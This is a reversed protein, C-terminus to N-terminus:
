LADILTTGTAPDDYVAVVDRFKDFLQELQDVGMKKYDLPRKYRQKYIAEFYGMQVRCGYSVMIEQLELKFEELSRESRVSGSGSGSGTDSLEDSSVRGGGNTVAKGKDERRLLVVPPPPSPSALNPKSSRLYVFRKNGKGVVEIVDSMKKFLDVLKCSGYDTVFLPKSFNRQYESTVRTLPMCGGSLELLKVLQGKLGNFDGPAVWMTSELHGPPPYASSEGANSPWCSMVGGSYENQFQSSVMLSSSERTNGYCSQSQQSVGRYLITEDENMADLNSSSNFGCNMLYPRPPPLPPRPLPVFGEGHVISHWDWVFKGANILAPNVYVGSPIILVVNYGRQGLVHLAPAFDVDGTILVITSPPPHDLAFLFMDLLIAKDAADKRGNPVDVLKVGTRQLGERVRRPFANFDGFASFNVVSAGTVVPHLQIAMRINGAVDEPRVDSPVPTNEIDWLIAMPNYPSSSSRRQTTTTAATATMNYDTGISDISVIARESMASERSLSPDAEMESEYVCRSLSLEVFKLSLVLCQPVTSFTLITERDWMLFDLILSELKPCSELFTSLTQLNSWYFKASLRTLYPFQILPESKSYQFVTTWIDTRIVLDEVRSIDTLIDRILGRVSLDFVVHLDVKGSFDQNIIKFNKTKNVKTRLCQLLPADIVAQICHDIHLRKLMQSRVNLVMESDHRDRIIKLDELLPSGSLLKELSAENHYTVYELSMIKLCPLSVCEPDVLHVLHTTLTGTDQLYIHKLTHYQYICPYAYVELHQIRRKTVVNIWRTLYPNWDYAANHLLLNLKRTWSEKHPDFFTEAFREFAKFDSFATSDLDLEPIWERLCRRWKTSLVRTKVADKTSLHILIESILHDPLESIKDEQSSGKDCKNTNKEGSVM